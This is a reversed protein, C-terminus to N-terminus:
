CSKRLRKQCTLFLQKSRYNFIMLFQTVPIKRWKQIYTYITLLSSCVTQDAVMHIKGVADAAAPFVDSLFGTVSRASLYGRTYAEDRTM